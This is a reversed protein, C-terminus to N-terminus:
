ATFDLEGFSTLLTTTGAQLNYTISTIATNITQTNSGSGITTILHGLSFGSSIGRFSLNLIRREQGYWMYAMRAIDRLKPRDDRVFGGSVNKKLEGADVAVITGPLMYDCHAGRINLLLPRVLDLSPMDAQEPYQARAYADQLMYITALWQDHNIGEGAAINEFSGNPTYLDQAIYHQPKGVVRLILGPTDERVLLEVPYSYPRRSSNAEASQNLRECHVWGGDAASSTRIAQTKLFMLPALYDTESDDELDLEPVIAKTYDVGQRMPLFQQIRLGSRQINARTETDLYGDADMKPFAFPATGSVPDTASRGDWTKKLRWWSFVRALNDGARVDQNAAEKDSDSLSSYGTKTSAATNYKSQDATTWDKEFNTQPRVTFVSGAQEGRCIVQDYRAMITTSVSADKVNVASDFNYTMTDPNAPITSGSPLTIDTTTQSWVKLKVTGSDIYAHWGLGRRRDILSNIVAWATAGEYSIQGIEYDLFTLATADLAFPVLVSGAANVPAFNELIYEVAHSAKWAEVAPTLFRDTFCKLTPDYNKWAVRNRRMPDPDTGGNFPIVRDIVWSGALTKVKTQLIPTQDLFWTMGMATYTEVGSPVNGTLEGDRRDDTNVLVGYWIGLGTVDIKVYKGILSGRAVTALVADAPRSGIEPLLAKGYRYRLVASPHAPAVQEVLQLCELLPQETWSGAWTAKTYCTVVPASATPVPIPM